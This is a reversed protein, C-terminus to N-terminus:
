GKVVSRLRLPLTVEDPTILWPGLPNFTECSKGKSWQGGSRDFPFERESVDDVLAYGAVGALAEAPSSLYRATRGIVVGLEVEGDTRGSNRPLAIDDEPGAVTNPAEHFVIPPGVRAGDVDAAPLDAPDGRFGGAALFAADIDATVSSLDYLSGESWLVPREAGPPGVRLYRM